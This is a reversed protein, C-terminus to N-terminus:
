GEAPPQAPVNVETSGMSSANGVNDLVKLAFYLKRESESAELNHTLSELQGTEKAAGTEIKPAAAFSVQGEAAEGDVIPRDSVRVDYGTANGCWGDDGTATWGLVVSTPTASRAGFDRPLAPPLTDNEPQAIAGAVNLRGGTVVKGALQDKADASGLLRERLDANNIGPNADAVLLAAGAVHPTAMSTGSYSKYGGGNVTSLINVGPAAIDVSTAGYCSFRALNDNHDTAAVAIIHDGEYSSPYHPRADNNSGSNGAAMIHLASSDAFAQEIGKNSAGGGWSNSTIRAGMKTAYQIGRVIAAVNTSGADNFIKVGMLNADHNVGAVGIGNNGKAAITGACHTGHSHGDMPDGTNAFANYGHVDDIVGNGDNDIGDGPIEGPNTWVNDKLDPHNYDIGTDIVALLTGGSAQNRGTHTAWAEPADIDADAKGGTQGTNHLGYLQGVQPDNTIGQGQTQPADGEIVEPLGYRNNPEAFAVRDDKAMAAMAEPVSIGAPLKIHLFEGNDSKHIDKPTDFQFLVKAGFDNVVSDSAIALGSGPKTRLIIEGPEHDGINGELAKADEATAALLAEARQSFPSASFSISAQDSAAAHSCGCDSKPAEPQAAAKPRSTVALNQNPRISQIM